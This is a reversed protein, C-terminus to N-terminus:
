SRACQNKDGLRHQVKLDSIRFGFDSVFGFPQFEFNLVACLVHTEFMPAKSNRIQKPNRTESKPNLKRTAHPDDFTKRSIVGV